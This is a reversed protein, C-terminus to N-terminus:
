RVEVAELKLKGFVRSVALFTEFPSVGDLSSDSLKIHVADVDVEDFTSDLAVWRRNVYVENWMHFGFGGLHTAYVLGAVVRAPIGEARCMAATLVGHETCDGSLTRAVEDAPAFSTEFNKNKLNTAVWRTIAQAKAWPDTASGAARRALAIVRPDDSTIMPNSRLFEPDVSDTGSAGDAPGATKVELIATRPEPGAKISQRRDNPIISAPDADTMTVKYLVDRSTEPNNIKRGIKVISAALLDFQPGPRLAAEKTTRYVVMGGNSDTYSKLVQGGSDVWFSTNFEPAIKGEEFAVVQDVRLLDRNVGGGLAVPEIGRATLTADGIKNLDPIFTKIQRVEGPKIPNRSLILEPGYPGYVDKGWPIVKEQRQSGNVINLTMKGNIVDGYVRIVQQSVLTRTDLRLVEGEPTEITGYQVEITSSDNGRKFSLNFDVLVNILPREGEKKPIVRTRMYGVKSGAVYVADWSESQAPASGASGALVGLIGLSLLVWRRPGEAIRRM